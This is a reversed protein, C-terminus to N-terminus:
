VLQGLLETGCAKGSLRFAKCSQRRCRKGAEKFDIEYLAHILTNIDDVIIRLDKIKLQQLYNRKGNDALLKFEEDLLANINNIRKNAM